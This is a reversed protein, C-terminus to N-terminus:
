APEPVPAVAALFERWRRLVPAEAHARLFEARGAAALGAARAPDALLAAIAAALAAPEERPVLLGTVGDAILESPGQAAAAVVPRGASWAELVVNGLPEHRSPCVLLDCGALLAGTDERWGLLHVRDAIGLTGALRELAAREPGEGAIALHTGPLLPMARLLVDFAKNAHLRGLALLRTGGPLTAPAAGALDHAFNPLHHTREAPWGQAVIWDRLDRTNGVLHDCGRYHKLDYYGGLRGVLRWRVGPRRRAPGAYGSARNMWSMVVDPAFGDLTAALRRGTVFDLHQGFPLEVPDIGAARLRATRGADRRTVALVTEGAAALAPVLREYFAEAGGLAASGMVQAIRM